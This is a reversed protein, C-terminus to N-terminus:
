SEIRRKISDHTLGYKRAIASAYALGDAPRRVIKYTRLAPNDSVVTSVMSVTQESFSTLEDVFTVWVCLADLEIIQEMIKTSLFIEDQITTSTFIENMIILSHSTAHDLIDHIRILDDELKGRLSEVKEEKEFHSFLRDFLFLRAERGPVPYGLSALYHLQGFTRAFTTKGGQNPGSVVLIRETGSLDFDNCVVSRDENVIKTALAIDFGDHDFIHKDHDTIQPFCFELGARKLGDIYDIYGLYFQVERDFAMMTENRFNQHKACFGDLKAFLEPNLKGVFELVKAEIHNMNHST